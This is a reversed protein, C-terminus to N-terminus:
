ISTGKNEPKPLFYLAYWEGKSTGLHICWANVETEGLKIDHLAVSEAVAAPTALPGFVCAPEGEKDIIAHYEDIKAAAAKDSVLMAAAIQNIQDKTDCQIMPQRITVYSGQPPPGVTAEQAKARSYAVLSVFAVTLVMSLNRM